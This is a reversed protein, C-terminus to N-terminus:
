VELADLVPYILYDENEKTKMSESFDLLIQVTRLSKKNAQINM